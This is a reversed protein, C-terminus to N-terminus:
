PTKGEADAKRAAEFTESVKRSVLAYHQAMKCIEGFRKAGADNAENRLFFLYAGAFLDSEGDKMLEQKSPVLKEESKSDKARKYEQFKSVITTDEQMSLCDMFQKKDEEDVLGAWPLADDSTWGGGLTGLCSVTSDYATHSGAVFYHIGKGKKVFDDHSGAHKDHWVCLDPSEAIYIKGTTPKSGQLKWQTFRHNGELCTFQKKDHTFLVIDDLVLPVRKPTPDPWPIAIHKMVDENVVFNKAVWWVATPPIELWMWRRVSLLARYRLANEWPSNFDPESLITPHKVFDLTARIGSQSRHHAVCEAVLWAHIVHNASTREWKTSDIPHDANAM